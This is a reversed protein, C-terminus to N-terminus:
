GYTWGRKSRYFILVSIMLNGHANEGTPFCGQEGFSFLGLFPKGGLVANLEQVVEPMRKQITLMCGACYVVLAGLIDEHQLAELMNVASRAVHGARSILSAPTGKMLWLTEGEQVESFLALSQDPLVKEPHSLRFLRVSGIEGAVRGLPSLSTQSLINGGRQLQAGILGHTWQNYVQAAPQGDLEQLLRGEARTIQASHFSADYGSHFNFLLQESPFLVALAVGQQAAHGQSFQWWNGQVAQDASSGGMVPVREGLLARIGELVREEFGPAASMFIMAPMEAPRQAQTLAEQLAKQTAAVADGEFACFGCGYAGDPDQLALVGLTYESANYGRETMVGQCSTTGLIQTTPLHQQLSHRLEPIAYNSTCFVFLMEPPASLTQFLRALIDDIATDVRELHSCATAIKM